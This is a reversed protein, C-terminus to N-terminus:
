PSVALGLWSMAASASTFRVEWSCISSAVSGFGAAPEALSSEEVFDGIHTDTDEAREVPVPGVDGEVAM